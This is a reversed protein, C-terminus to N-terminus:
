PSYGDTLTRLFAVIADVEDASLGLNGLEETNMTEPVEAAPWEAVDRSNYFEVVSTLDPFFGNHGYPATLEINRLSSVRFKGDEAPDDVTKGLGRDIFDAGEPNLEPPLTYFPNNPNKPMGINDYTFDTFQPLSGDESVASPHCAACNGKAPDEFLRLGRREQRNLRATGALYADYKSTFRRFPRTREFEAIARTMADYAADVDDFIHSGFSRRFQNRYPAQALKRVVAARDANNMELPNLFPQAAQAELTSARGDLFLGGVFLGEEEDFALPPVFMAYTAMPTNRVGFREDLVGRSTPIDQDPDTFALSSVHCTACSQGAPTSLGVDNFIREGLAALPSRREAPSASPTATVDAGRVDFDDGGDAPADVLGGCASSLLVACTAIRLGREYM